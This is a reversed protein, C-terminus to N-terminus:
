TARKCAAGSEKSSSTPLSSEQSLATSPLLRLQDQLYCLHADLRTIEAAVAEIEEKRSGALLLKLRDQAEQLEKERVTVLEKTDEYERKSILQDQVLAKDMELHIQAYKIREQAKAAVTRALEIEEPRTGAQLLNLRARREELEAKTKRIEALYDRDFLSAIREGQKVTDGEEVYIQQILGEVEARVDAHRLPLVTFPASIRLETRIIFLAAVGGGLICLRILRKLWKIITPVTTAQTFAARFLNKLPGPLPM